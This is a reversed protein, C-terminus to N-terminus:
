RGVKLAKRREREAALRRKREREQCVPALSSELDGPMVLWTQACGCQCVAENM